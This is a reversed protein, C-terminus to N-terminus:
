AVECPAGVYKAWLGTYHAHWPHAPDHRGDYAYLTDLLQLRAGQIVPNCGPMFTTSSSEPM